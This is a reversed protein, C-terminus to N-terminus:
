CPMILRHLATIPSQLVTRFPIGPVADIVTTSKAVLVDPSSVPILNINSSASQNFVRGDPLTYNFALIAQNSLQQSAPLTDIVVSFVVTLAAGAAISGLTIGTAPDAGPSPFGNILVSNPVLTTGAPITDTLTASAAYNGSNSVNVTYVITDGVTANQASSSKAAAIIPQFVPTTVINSFAASSLAGSTFSASSQNNLLGSPPLATVTVNFAVTVSAGPAISGITVGTAPSAAPRAVGDVLVSGPVFATGAPLADTFVVNNVTAIGNNTLTVSYTITDGINTATTATTKVVALNPNSVPLTVTNTLSSDGLTRGDPLTFSSAVTGQNVLVQPSPLSTIVVSFTVAVTAGPAITGAAIGTSPDAQPLPQGNILVSNTVFTTGAPINDTVTLSAGYNGTNSINITYTM